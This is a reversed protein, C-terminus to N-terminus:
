RIYSFIRGCKRDRCCPGAGGPHIQSLTKEGTSSRYFGDKILHLTQIPGLSLIESAWFNSGGEIAAFLELRAAKEPNM